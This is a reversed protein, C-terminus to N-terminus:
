LACICPGQSPHSLSARHSCILSPCLSPGRHPSTCPFHSVLHDKSFLHSLVLISLFSFFFFFLSGSPRMAPGSQLCPSLMRLLAKSLCTCPPSPISTFPLLSSGLTCPVQFCAHLRHQSHGPPSAPRVPSSPCFCSGEDAAQVKYGM